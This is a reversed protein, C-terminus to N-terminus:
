NIHKGILSMLCFSISNIAIYQNNQNIEKKLESDQRIKKCIRAILVISIGEGNIKAIKANKALPLMAKNIM